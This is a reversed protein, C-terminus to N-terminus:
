KTLEMCMNMRTLNFLFSRMGGGWDVGVNEGFAKRVECTRIEQSDICVCVCVAYFSRIRMALDSDLLFLAPRIHRWVLPPSAMRFIPPLSIHPVSIRPTYLVTFSM